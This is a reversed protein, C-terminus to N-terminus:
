LDLRFKGIIKKVVDSTENESTESTIEMYIIIGSGVVMVVFGVGLLIKNTAPPPCLKCKTSGGTRKYQQKCTACLRCRTINGHEDTCNNRYGEAENCTDTFNSYEDAPDYLAGDKELTYVKPNPAGYCAHPYLCVEFACTPQSRKQNLDSNLCEPPSNVDEPIINQLRWWGYKPRVEQWTVDDGVCYGGLPCLQCEWDKKNTSSKNLYQANYDCDSATLYPTKECGTAQENPIKDNECTLCATQKRESQYQGTPCKSCEGATAGYQGLGCFGCSTSGNQLTTEGLECQICKTLNTDKDARKWGLPCKRCGDGTNIALLDIEAGYRGVICKSCSSAGAELTFQGRFCSMCIISGSKSIKGKECLDCVQSNMAGVQQSHKGPPCANCTSNASAGKATSYTGKKCEKCNSSSSSGVADSWTGSECPKCIGKGNENQYMGIMCNTCKTDDAQAIKGIRCENCTYNYFDGLKM